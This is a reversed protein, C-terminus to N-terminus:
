PLISRLAYRPAPSRHRSSRHPGPSWAPFSSRVMVWVSCRTRFSGFPPDDCKGFNLELFPGHFRILQCPLHVLHLGSQGCVGRIPRGLRIVLSKPPTAGSACVAALLGASLIMALATAVAPASTPKSDSSWWARPISQFTSFTATSSLSYSQSIRPCTLNSALRKAM